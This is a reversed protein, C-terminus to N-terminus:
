SILNSKNWNKLEEVLSCLAENIYQPGKLMKEVVDPKNMLLNALDKNKLLIKKIDEDFINIFEDFSGYLKKNPANMQITTDAMNINNMSQQMQNNYPFIIPPIINQASPLNPIIPILPLKLQNFNPPTFLQPLPLMCFENGISNTTNNCNNVRPQNKSGTFNSIDNYKLYISVKEPNNYNFKIILDNKIIESDEYIKSPYYNEKMTVKHNEKVHEFNNYCKFIENLANNLMERLNVTNDNPAMNLLTFAEKGQANCYKQSFENPANINLLNNNMVNLINNDKCNESLNATNVFSLNNEGENQLGNNHSILNMFSNNFSEVLSSNQIDVSGSITNNGLTTIIRSKKNDDSVTNQIDMRSLDKESSNNGKSTYYAFPDEVINNNGKNMEKLTNCQFPSIDYSFASVNENTFKVTKRSSNINNDEFPLDYMPDAVTGSYTNLSASNRPSSDIKRRSSFTSINENTIQKSIPGHAKTENSEMNYNNVGRYSGEHTNSAAHAYKSFARKNRLYHANSSSMITNSSNRNKYMDEEMNTYNPSNTGDHTNYKNLYVNKDVLLDKNKIINKQSQYNRSLNHESRHMLLSGNNSSSNNYPEKAFESMNRNKMSTDLTYSENMKNHKDYPPHAGAMISANKNVPKVMNYNYGKILNQNESFNNNIPPRHPLDNMHMMMGKGLVSDFHGKEINAIDTLLNESKSSESINKLASFKKIKGEIQAKKYELHRKKKKEYEENLTDIIELMINKSEGSKGEKKKQTNKAALNPEGKSVNISNVLDERPSCLSGKGGYDDRKKNDGGYFNDGNDQKVENVSKAKHIGSFKPDAEHLSSKQDVNMSKSKRELISGADNSNDDKQVDNLNGNKEANQQMGSYAGNAMNESEGKGVVVKGESDANKNESLAKDRILKWKEILEKAINRVQENDTVYDLENKVDEKNRSIFNIPIGILTSKLHDLTINFKKLLNLIHTLLVTCKKIIKKKAMNKLILKICGLGDEEVFVDYMDVPSSVLIKFYYKLSIYSTENKILTIVKKMYVREKMNDLNNDLENLIANKCMEKKEEKSLETCKKLSREYRRKVFKLYIIIKSKKHKFSPEVAYLSHLLNVNLPKDEFLCPIIKLKNAVYWADLSKIEGENLGDIKKFEYPKEVINLTSKLELIIQKTDKESKNNINFPNLNADGDADRVANGGVNVNLDMNEIPANEANEIMKNGAENYEAEVAEVAEVAKKTKGKKKENVATEANTAYGHDTHLQETHTDEVPTMEGKTKSKRRGVVERNTKEKANKIADRKTVMKKLTTLDIISDMPPSSSEVSLASSRKQKNTIKSKQTDGKKGITIKGNQNPFLVDSSKSLKLKDFNNRVGKIEGNKKRKGNSTESTNIEKSILEM